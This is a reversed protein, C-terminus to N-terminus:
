RARLPEAHELDQEVPDALAAPDRDEARALVAVLQERDLIEDVRDDGGGLAVLGGALRDVDAGRSNPM